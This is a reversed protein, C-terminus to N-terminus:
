GLISREGGKRVLTEGDDYRDYLIFEAVGGGLLGLIIKGSVPPEEVIGEAIRTGRLTGLTNVM